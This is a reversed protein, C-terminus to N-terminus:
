CIREWEGELDVAEEIKRELDGIVVEWAPLQFKELKEEWPPIRRVFREWWSRVTLEESQPLLIFASAILHDLVRKATCWALYPGIVFQNKMEDVTMILKEYERQDLHLQVAHRPLKATPLLNPNNPGPYQAKWQFLRNIANMHENYHIPNSRSCTFYHRKHDFSQIFRFEFFCKGAAQLVEDIANAFRSPLVLFVHAPPRLQEKIFVSLEDPHVTTPRQM